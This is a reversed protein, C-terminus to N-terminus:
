AEFTRGASRGREMIWLSSGLERVTAGLRAACARAEDPPSGTLSSGALVGDPKLQNEWYALDIQLQAPSCRGGLFVIDVLGSPWLEWSSGQRLPFVNPLAGACSAFSEYTHRGSGPEGSGVQAGAWAEPPWQDIAYVRAETNVAWTYAVQGLGSRVDVLIADRELNNAYEALRLLDAEALAGPIRSGTLRGVNAPAGRRLRAELADLPLGALRAIRAALVDWSNASSYEDAARQAALTYDDLALAVDYIASVFHSPSLPATLGSGTAEVVDGAWTGETTVVPRGQWLTEVFSDPPSDGLLRPEYPLAVVAAPDLDLHPGELVRLRTQRRIRQMAAARVSDSLGGVEAPDPFCVPILQSDSPRSPSTASSRAALEVAPLPAVDFAVGTARALEESLSETAATIELRAPPDVLDRLTQLNRSLWGHWRDTRMLTTEWYLNVGARARPNRDLARRLTVAHPLSGRRMYVLGQRGSLEADIAASLELEYELQQSAPLGGAVKGGGFSLVPRVAAPHGPPEVGDRCLVVVEGGLRALSRVLHAAGERDTGSQQAFGDPEILIVRDDVSAVKNAAEEIV